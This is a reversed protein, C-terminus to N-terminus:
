RDAGRPRTTGPSGGLAGAIGPPVAGGDADLVVIESEAAVAALPRYVVDLDFRLLGDDDTQERNLVPRAFAPDTFLNDVLELVAEDSRAAGQISLLVEGPALEVDDRSSRRRDTGTNPALSQLRVERPLIDTLEDFLTSWSFRREDIRENLFAVQENQGALDYGELDRELAAVRREEVEIAEATEALRAYTDGRGALFDWYLWVNGALLLTGVLWLVVALRVVPRTNVYPRAALNLEDYAM